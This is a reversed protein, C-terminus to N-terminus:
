KNNYKKKLYDLLGKYESPESGVINGKEDEVMTPCIILQDIAYLVVLSIVSVFIILRFM